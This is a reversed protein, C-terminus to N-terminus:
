VVFGEVGRSLSKLALGSFRLGWGLCVLLEMINSREFVKSIVCVCVTM